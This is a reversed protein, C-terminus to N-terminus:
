NEMSEMHELLRVLAEVSVHEGESPPVRRKLRQWVLDGRLLATLRKGKRTLANPMECSARRGANWSTFTAIYGKRYLQGAARYIDVEEYKVMIRPDRDGALCLM